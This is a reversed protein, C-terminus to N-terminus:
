KRHRFSKKKDFGHGELKEMDSRVDEIDPERILFDYIKQYIENAPIIAPIGFDSLKVNLVFSDLLDHLIVPCDFINNYNADTKFLREHSYSFHPADKRSIRLHNFNNAHQKIYEYEAPELPQFFYSGNLYIGNYKERCIYLIFTIARDKIDYKIFNPSYVQGEKVMKFTNNKREITKCTRQYIIKEDIGYIGNLYDYYDKFKSIIKM